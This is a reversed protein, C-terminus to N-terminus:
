RQCPQLIAAPLWQAVIVLVAFGCLTLSCVAMFRGRADSSREDGPSQPGVEVFLRWSSLAVLGLVVLAVITPLHVLVRTHSCAWSVLGYSAQQQLFVIAPPTLVLTWQRVGSGWHAPLVLKERKAVSTM